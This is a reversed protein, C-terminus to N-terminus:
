RNLNWNIPEINNSILYQNTRSFPKSGFFGKHASYFSPHSSKIIFNERTKIYKEYKQALRGWFIYVINKKYFSLFKFFNITFFDWGIYKHSLPKGREVTLISNLLLVGELGWLTLNNTKTNLLLDNNLEKFINKLSSPTKSSLTSFSLGHAQNFGPYPDQGLIVVKTKLFDTLKFAKFIDKLDPYIIKDKEIEKKLFFLIKKFYLKKKEQNIFKRWMLDM